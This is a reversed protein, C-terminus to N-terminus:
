AEEAPIQPAQVTQQGHGPEMRDPKPPNTLGRDAQQKPKLRRMPFNHRRGTAFTLQVEHAPYVQTGGAIPWCGGSQLNVIWIQAKWQEDAIVQAPPSVVMHPTDERMFVDGKELTNLNVPMFAAREQHKIRHPRPRSSDGHAM